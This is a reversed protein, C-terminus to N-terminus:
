NRSGGCKCGPRNAGAKHQKAVLALPVSTDATTLSSGYLQDMCDCDTAEVENKLEVAENPFDRPHAPCEPISCLEKKHLEVPDMTFCWPSAMSSDPNRCYNHNGLGNGWKMMSKSNPDNEDLKSEEDAEPKMASADEWPHSASWKQCTRGSVTTSVLGRYSRGKAGGEELPSPDEVMYCGLDFSSLEAPPERGRRLAVKAASAVDSALAFAALALTTRAM